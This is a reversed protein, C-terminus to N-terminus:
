EPNVASITVPNQVRAPSAMAPKKTDAKQQTSRLLRLDLYDYEQRASQEAL